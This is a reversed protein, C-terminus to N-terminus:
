QKPLLQIYIYSFQDQALQVTYSDTRLDRLPLTLSSTSPASINQELLLHFWGPSYRGSYKPPLDLNGQFLSCWMFAFIHIKNQPRSWLWGGKSSSRQLISEPILRWAVERRRYIKWKWLICLFLFSPNYILFSLSTDTPPKHNQSLHTLLTYLHPGDCGLLHTQSHGKAKSYLQHALISNPWPLEESSGYIGGTSVDVASLYPHYIRVNASCMGVNCNLM